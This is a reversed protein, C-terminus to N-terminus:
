CGCRSLNGYGYPEWIRDQGVHVQVVNEIRPEVLLPAAALDPAVRNDHPISVVEHHAKLMPTVRLLEQVGHLLPESAEVQFRVGALGPEDLEPPKRHRVMPSATPALRFRETEQAERM